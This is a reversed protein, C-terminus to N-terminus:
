TNPTTNNSPSWYQVALTVPMEAIQNNNDWGLSIEGVVTPWTGELTYTRITKGERNILHVEATAMYKTPNGWGPIAVNSVHGNALDSWVEFADRNVLDSDLMVTINWDDFTRDGALKVERGMYPAVAIGLNSAPVTAAKCTFAVKTAAQAGGVETPFTVIVKYLNPRLGGGQFNAIFSNVDVNNSM